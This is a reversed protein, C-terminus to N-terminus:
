REEQEEARLADEASREWEDLREKAAQLQEAATTLESM